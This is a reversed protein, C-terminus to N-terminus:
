FFDNQFISNLLWDLSQTILVTLPYEYIPQMFGQYWLQMAKTTQFNKLDPGEQWIRITTNLRKKGLSGRATPKAWSTLTFLIEVVAESVPLMFLLEAVLLSLPWNSKITSLNKVLHKSFHDLQSEFHKGRVLCYRGEAGSLRRGMFGARRSPEEYHSYIERLVTEKDGQGYANIDKSSTDLLSNLLQFSWKRANALVDEISVFNASIKVQDPGAPNSDLYM